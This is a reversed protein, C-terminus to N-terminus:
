VNLGWLLIPCKKKFSAIGGWKISKLGVGEVMIETSKISNISGRFTYEIFTRPKRGKFGM